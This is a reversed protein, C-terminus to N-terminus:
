YGPNQANKLAPNNLLEQEPIPYLADTEQWDTKIGELISNVKQTRKIDLWRHGWESFLERQRELQIEEILNDQTLVDMESLGARVRIQNLDEYAGSLNGQHARAEARILFQEALRFVMSYETIPSVTFAKYKYPYTFTQAGTTRLQLWMTQRNDEPDFLAIFEPRIAAYRPQNLLPFLTANLTNGNDRSLQWIAENSNILFVQSLDQELQFNNNAIIKSTEIEANEWQNLYLYTRGLLATAVFSNAQVRKNGAFTYDDPLLEQARELDDIIQNFIEGESVKAKSSNIRYDTELILPVESWLNVLYFYAFARLFRAEGELQSRKQESLNVSNQLGELVANAKYITKYLASWVNLVIANQPTLRNENFQRYNDMTIENSVLYSIFEDASLGTLYAISNLDGSAFGSSSLQYYIDIIASEATGDSQFVVQRVIETRPNDVKIFEECGLLVILLLALSTRNIKKLKM